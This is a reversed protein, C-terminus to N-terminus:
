PLPVHVAPFIDGAAFSNLLLSEIANTARLKSRHTSAEFCQSSYAPLTYFYLLNELQHDHHLTVASGSHDRDRYYMIILEDTWDRHHVVTQSERVRLERLSLRGIVMTSRQRGDFKVQPRVM